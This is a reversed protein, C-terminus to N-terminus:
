KVKVTHKGTSGKLGANGAYKVTVAYKGKKLKKPLKVTAKGKKLTAKKKEVTKKGKKVLVTVKGKATSGHATKVTVKTTVKKGKAKPAVKTKTTDKKVTITDFATNVGAPATCQVTVPSNVLGTMPAGSGDYVNLTSTFDGATLTIRGARTAKYTGGSGTAVATLDRDQPIDTTPVKLTSTTAKGGIGGKAVATGDATRGGLAYLANAMSAPITVKSTLTIAKSQGVYMTAPANSDNVVGFTVDGLVPVACTYDLSSSAAEAPALVGAGATVLSATAVVAAIASARKHAHTQM